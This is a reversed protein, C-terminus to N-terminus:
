NSREFGCRIGDRSRYRKQKSLCAPMAGDSLDASFPLADHRPAFFSAADGLFIFSLLLLYIFAFELVLYTGMEFVPKLTFGRKATETPSSHRHSDHFGIQKGHPDSGTLTHPNLTRESGEM